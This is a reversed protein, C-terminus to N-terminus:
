PVIGTIWALVNISCVFICHGNAQIISYPPFHSRQSNDNLMEISM